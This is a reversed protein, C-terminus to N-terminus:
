VYQDDYAPLYVAFVKLSHTSSFGFHVRNVVKKTFHKYGSARQAAQNSACALQTFSTCLIHQAVVPVAAPTQLACYTNLTTHAAAHVAHM